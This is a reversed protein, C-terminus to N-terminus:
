CAVIVKEESSTKLLDTFLKYLFEDPYLSLQFTQVFILSREQCLNPKEVPYAWYFIQDIVEQFKPSRERSLRQYIGRLCM